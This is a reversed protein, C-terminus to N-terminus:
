MCFTIVWIVYLSGSANTFPKLSKQSQLYLAPTQAKVKQPTQLDISNDDSMQMDRARKTYAIKTPICLDMHSLPVLCIPLIYTYRHFYTSPHPFLQRAPYYEFPELLGVEPIPIGLLPICM